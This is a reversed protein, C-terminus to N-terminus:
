SVSIGEPKWDFIDTALSVCITGNLQAKVDGNCSNNNLRCPLGTEINLRSIGNIAVMAKLAMKHSYGEAVDRKDTEKVEPRHRAPLRGTVKYAM